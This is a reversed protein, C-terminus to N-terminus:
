SPHVPDGQIVRLLRRRRELLDDATQSSEGKNADVQVSQEGKSIHVDGKRPCGIGRGEHAERSDNVSTPREVAAGLQLLRECYSGASASLGSSAAYVKMPTVPKCDKEDEKMANKCEKGDEKITNVHSLDLRDSGPKLRIEDSGSTAAGSSWMSTAMKSHTAAGAAAACPMPEGSGTAPLALRSKM